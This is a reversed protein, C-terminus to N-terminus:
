RAPRSGPNRYRVIWVPHGHFPMHQFRQQATIVLRGHYSQGGEAAAGRVRHLLPHLGSTRMGSDETTSKLAHPLVSEFGKAQLSCHLEDPSYPRGTREASISGPLRVRNM